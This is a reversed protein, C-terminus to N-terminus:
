LQVTADVTGPRETMSAVVVGSLTTRRRSDMWVHGDGFSRLAMGGPDTKPRATSSVGSRRTGELWSRNWFSARLLSCAMSPATM